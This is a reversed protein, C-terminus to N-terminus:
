SIKFPTKDATMFLERMRKERMRKSLHFIFSLEAIKYVFM